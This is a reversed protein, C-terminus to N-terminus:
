GHNIGSLGKGHRHKARGRHSKRHRHRHHRVPDGNGGIGLDAGTGSASPAPPSSGAAHCEDAAECQVAPAVYPFGGNTRADYFKLQSGNLDQGVLSDYTTFYADNGDGSVGVLGATFLGANIGIIVDSNSDKSSIGSSILQAHGEVYEYVDRLDDSDRAVLPDGTSFFVRGDNTLFSGDSSAETDSTPPAGSPLCSLCTLRETAADYRYMELHEANNYATVRSATLFAMHAGDPTVQMRVIPGDSCFGFIGDNGCYKAPSLSAVFHVRGEYYGYLNQQGNVGKSGALQEPSYFYIAGSDPAISNDSRGSGLVSGYSFVERYVGNVYPAVGCKTVWTAHCSDTNGVEGAVDQNNGKSILTLPDGDEQGRQSWMYLDTSTDHDEGNLQDPSTFFVQSGGRTMGVYQVHSPQGVSNCSVCYSVADDVRMYLTGPQPPCQERGGSTPDTCLQHSLGRASMLIHSGDASVAPVTLSEYNPETDGPEIPIPSGSPTKSVESASEAATENDVITLFPAAGAQFVYHTFDASQNFVASAQYHSATPWEGLSSGNADWVYPTYNYPPIPGAYGYSYDNWDLFQSLTADARTGAPSQLLHSNFNANSNPEDPPGNALFAQNDPLGVYKTTWGQSTRTAVYLDGYGTPPNGSGPIANLLGGYALRAPSTAESSSPGEPFLATGNASAPSVLEYARCDPLYASNTIQRLHSNPCDPPHFSFSQDETVTTGYTNEAVVRFHYTIGAQLNALETIVKQSSTGSGIDEDPSPTSSGYALTPGYEFRYHTDAGQPNITASLQASTASLHSAEFSEVTPASPTRFADDQGYTTGAANTAVIRYHYTVGPELDTITIPQVFQAGEASGADEIGSSHGYTTDTGYEFYYHVDDGELGTFSAHLTARTAEVMTAAETRLSQVSHPTFHQVAGPATANATGVSVRYYYTTGTTLGSLNASVPTATSFHSGPPSAAPDPSCPISGLGFATTTGYEFHCSTVVGGGNPDVKAHLTASVPTAASPPEYTVKPVIIKPSFIDVVGEGAEPVYVHGESDVAIGNLSRFPQGVATGTIQTLYKGAPSFEDILSRERDVVLLNGNTPDVAIGGDSLFGQPKGFGGPVEAGTFEQVFEGSSKFEAIRKQYSDLVYINGLSDVTLGNVGVFSESPTGSIENGEVNPENQVSFPVPERESNVAAVGSKSFSINFLAYLLSTSEAGSNDIAIHTDGKSEERVSFAPPVFEGLANFEGILDAEATFLLGDASDVAFSSGCTGCRGGGPRQEILTQSPFPTFKKIVGEGGVDKIWIDDASDVVVGEPQTFGNIQSDYAREAFAPAAALGLFALSVSLVALPLLLPRRRM